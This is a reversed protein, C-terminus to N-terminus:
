RNDAVFEITSGMQRKINDARSYSLLTESEVAGSSGSRVVGDDPDFAAIAARLVNQVLDISLAGDSNFTVVAVNCIVPSYAGCTMAFEVTLGNKRGNWASFSFGLEHMVEGGIDRRNSKLMPGISSADVALAVLPAKARSVKKFWQFLETDISAVARLFEALRTASTNRSEARAGWYVGVVYRTM